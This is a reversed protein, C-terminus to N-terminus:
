VAPIPARKEGCSAPLAAEPDRALAWGLRQRIESPAPPHTKEARRQALYQRVQEKSPQTVTAM